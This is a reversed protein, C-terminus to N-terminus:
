EVRITLQGQSATVAGGGSLSWDTSGLIYLRIFVDGPYVGCWGVGETSADQYWHTSSM